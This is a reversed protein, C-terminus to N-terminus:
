SYEEVACCAAGLVGADTGLSAPVIRCRAAAEPPYALVAVKQKVTDFLVDGVQSVGGGIVVADLDLLNLASAVATGLYEFAERLIASATPDGQRAAEAVVRATVPGSGAIAAITRGAPRSALEQGRRAIATGSAVAELCGRSGCSCLPGNPVMTIHGIEGAGGRAGRYLRGDLVLGGGVGTSVTIYLMARSNVGAGLRSEALAAANADNEICTPRGLERAVIAALGVSRWGLNPADLVTGADRDVPGPAGVCIGAVDQLRIGADDVLAKVSGTIRSIVAKVGEEPVTAVQIRSLVNRGRDVLAAAIKTGGLDVGAFYMPSAEALRGDKGASARPWTDLYMLM